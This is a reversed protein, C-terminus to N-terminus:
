REQEKQPVIKRENRKIIGLFLTMIFPLFIFFGLIVWSDAHQSLRKTALASDTRLLNGDDISGGPSGIQLNCDPPRYDPFCQCHGFNNCIGNGKCKKAANCDNGTFNVEKCSGNICYMQPGCVTGDAVYANDKGDSRMSLGPPISLCVSGHVYSYLVSQTSSKYNKNPRFCALKGCLVDKQGCPLSYSNKSDCNALNERQSNVKEFCAYSAGQSGKGFLSVCQDNLAQCRGNYCYASGLRCLHGDLAFTDPVCHSSSGDCYETFDCEPDVAKRCPTGAASLECKPTCCTGSGCQASGKLKCTEHNCCEKFQCETENGCDCEESGEVIGNGCVSQKPQLVNSLDGLCQMDLKSAYHTYDHVSCNSFTKMGSSSLAEPQMICPARPCSCNDVDDYTLGIHLGILQTIVMSLGELGIDEPYTGVGAVYSENCLEGPSTAGIYKLHKRYILLHTIENSQPTLYDRKWGLLRQLIDSANGDTSIQNKDSWLELSALVVNLNLQTFMTNVLGIIQFIKQTVAMIDSGMYDFLFKGVIIHLKLSKPLLQSDNKDQERFHGKDLQRSTQWICSYNAALTSSNSKMQYVIHEFRASSELPEIGYSTNELQLFGRLGSCLSLTVISDPVEGVYGRYHCHALFHPSDSYLSGTENYAYVSFNRSLFSYNRLHLFYPKGDITIVYSVKGESDGGKFPEIKQPVTIHLWIGESDLAALLMALEALIFFLPM